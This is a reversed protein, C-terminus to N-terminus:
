MNVALCSDGSARYGWTCKWGRGYSTDTPYANAPVEVAICVGDDEQEQYGRDCTWDSGYLNASANAPMNGTRVQALAPSSSAALLAFLAM